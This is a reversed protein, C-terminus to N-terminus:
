SSLKCRAGCTRYIIMFGQLLTLCFQVATYKSGEGGVLLKLQVATWNQGVKDEGGILMHAKGPGAVM